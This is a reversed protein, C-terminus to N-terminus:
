FTELGKSSLNADDDDNMDLIIITYIDYSILNFLRQFKVFLIMIFM